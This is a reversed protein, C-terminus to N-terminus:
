QRWAGVGTTSTGRSVGGAIAEGSGAGQAVHAGQQRIGGRAEATVVRTAFHFQQERV